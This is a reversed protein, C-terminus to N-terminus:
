SSDATLWLHLLAIPGPSRNTEPFNWTRDHETVFVKRGLVRVEAPLSCTRYPDGAGRQRELFGSLTSAVSYGGRTYAIMMASPMAWAYRGDVFRVLGEKGYDSVPHNRDMIKCEVFLAQYAPFPISTTRLSFRRIVLDPKKSVHRGDYSIVESGRDVPQFLSARFGSPHGRDERIRNLCYELNATIRNEECTALEDGASERLESWAAKFAKVVVRRTAIPFDEHPLSEAASTIKKTLFCAASM